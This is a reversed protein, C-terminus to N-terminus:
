DRTMDDCSMVRLELWSAIIGEVEGGEREKESAGRCAKGEEKGAREEMFGM